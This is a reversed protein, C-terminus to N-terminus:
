VTDYQPNNYVDYKLKQDAPNLVSASDLSRPAYVLPFRIAPCYALHKAWIAVIGFVGGGCTCRIARAAPDCREFEGNPIPRMHDFYTLASGGHREREHAPETSLWACAEDELRGAGNSPRGLTCPGVTKHDTGVAFSPYGQRRPPAICHTALESLGSRPIGRKTGIPLPVPLATRFLADGSVDLGRENLQATTAALGEGQEGVSAAPNSLTSASVGKPRRNGRIRCHSWPPSAGLWEAAVGDVYVAADYCGNLTSGLPSM